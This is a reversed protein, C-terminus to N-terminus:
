GDFYRDPRGAHSHGEISIKYKRVFIAALQLGAADYSFYRVAAILTAFTWFNPSPLREIIAGAGKASQPFEGFVGSYIEDVRACVFFLTHVHGSVKGNSKFMRWFTILHNKRVMHDKEVFKM